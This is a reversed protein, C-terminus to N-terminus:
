RWEGSRLVCKKVREQHKQAHRTIKREAAASAQQSKRVACLRGEVRQEGAHMGVEWQGVHGVGPLQRLEPLLRFPQDDPAFLPVASNLRVIVDGGQRRVWAVGAPHCYGRDALILDGAAVPFRELNEATQPGKRSTM